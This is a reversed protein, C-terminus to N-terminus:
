GKRALEAIRQWRDIEDPLEARFRDTGAIDITMSQSECMQAFGPTSAIKVLNSSLSRVVAPPTAAAAMVGIWSTATYGPVGAESATPVDPLTDTRRTGTVALARLQGSKVLPLGASVSQCTFDVQRGTTELVAGAAGKYPIHRAQTGTMHNLQVACLHSLSGIGASAYTVAGPSARMARLLDQLTRLPSGASVLFMLQASCLRAVPVFDKAPDYPLPTEITFQNIYHSVAAMLLASGDAPARAVYDAGIIGSAGVKNDVIVAARRMHGLPEALFRAVVDFGTGPSAPVILRLPKDTSQARAPAANALSALLTLKLADRRSIIPM